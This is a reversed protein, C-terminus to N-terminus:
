LPIKVMGFKALDIKIPTIVAIKIPNIKKGNVVVTKTLDRIGGTYKVKNPSNSTNNDL